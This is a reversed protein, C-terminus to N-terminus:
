DRGADRAVVDTTCLMDTCRVEVLTLPDKVTPDFPTMKGSDTVYGLYSACGLGRCADPPLAFCSAFTTQENKLIGVAGNAGCCHPAVIIGCDGDHQCARATAVLRGGDGWCFSTDVSADKLAAGGTGGGGAGSVRDGAYGGFVGEFGGSGFEGGTGIGGGGTQGTGGAAGTANGGSNGTTGAVGVVDSTGSSTESGGCSPALISLGVVALLFGTLPNLM